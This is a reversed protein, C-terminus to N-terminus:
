DKSGCICHGENILSIQGRMWAFDGRDDGEPAGDAITVNDAHITLTVRPTGLPSRDIRVTDGITYLDLKKGDINIHDLGFHIHNISFTRTNDNM